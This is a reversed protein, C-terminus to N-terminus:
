RGPITRATPPIKTWLLYQDHTYCLYDGVYLSSSVEFDGTKIIGRLPRTSLLPYADCSMNEMYAFQSAGRANKALGGFSQVTEISRKPALLNPLNM